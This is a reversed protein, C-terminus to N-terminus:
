DGGFTHSSAASSDSNPNNYFSAGGGAAIGQCDKLYINYTAGQKGPFANNHQAYTKFLFLCFKEFHVLRQQLLWECVLLESICV